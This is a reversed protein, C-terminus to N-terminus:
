IRHNRITKIIQISTPSQYDPNHFFAHCGQVMCRWGSPQTVLPSERKDKVLCSACFYAGSKINEFVGRDSRHIFKPKFWSYVAILMCLLVVAVLIALLAKWGTPEVLYPRFSAHLYLLGSGIIASLATMAIPLKQALLTKTFLSLWDKM